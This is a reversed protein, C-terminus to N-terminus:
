LQGTCEKPIDDRYVIVSVRLGLVGYTHGTLLGPKLRLFFWMVGLSIPAYKQGFITVFDIVAAM